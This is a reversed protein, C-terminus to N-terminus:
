ETLPLNSTATVAVPLITPLGEEPAGPQAHEKGRWRRAIAQV